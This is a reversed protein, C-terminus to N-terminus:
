RRYPRREDGIEGGGDKAKRAKGKQHKSKTSKRKNKTHEASKKAKKRERKMNFAIGASTGVLGVAIRRMASRSLDRVNRAARTFAQAADASSARYRPSSVHISITVYVGVLVVGVLLVLPIAEGSLDMQNVSDAPYTYRNDNGGIVPDISLFRGTTPAYLRAGMLVLGGLAAADRQHTGLWGYRPVAGTAGTPRRGYEDTEAYQTIGAQGLTATAVIDGHLNVLQLTAVGQDDVDVALGGTLDSVYRSWSTTFTANEDPRTKTETWAPSDSSDDYHNLTQLLAIGDTRTVTQAIRDSADLTFSQKKLQTGAGSAITQELSAVMENAHYGVALNSVGALGAQDTHAVPMTLTRGMRDYTYGTGTIRDAQDYTYTETLAATSTEPM